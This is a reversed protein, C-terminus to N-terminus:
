VLVRVNRVGGAGEINTDSLASFRRGMYLKYAVNTPSLAM